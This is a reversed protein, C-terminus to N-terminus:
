VIMMRFANLASAVMFWLLFEKEERVAQTNFIISLSYVIWTQLLFCHHNNEKNKKGKEYQPLKSNLKM